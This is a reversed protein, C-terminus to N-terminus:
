NALRKSCSKTDYFLVVLVVSDLYSEVGRGGCLLWSEHCGLKLMGYFHSVVFVFYFCQQEPAAIHAM